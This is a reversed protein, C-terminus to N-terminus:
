NSVVYRTEYKIRFSKSSIRYTIKKKFPSSFSSLSPFSTNIMVFCMRVILSITMVVLIMMMMMMMSVVIMLLMVMMIIFM